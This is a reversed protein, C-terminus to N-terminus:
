QSVASCTLYQGETRNIRLLMKAAVLCVVSGQEGQEIVSSAMLACTSGGVFAPRCQGHILLYIWSRVSPDNVVGVPAGVVEFGVRGRAGVSVRHVGCRRPVSAAACVVVALPLGVDVLVGCVGFFNLLAAALLGSFLFRGCPERLLLFGVSVLQTDTKETSSPPNSGGVEEMGHFRAVLQAMAGKNLEDGGAVQYIIARKELPM